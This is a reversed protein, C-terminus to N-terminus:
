PTARGLRAVGAPPDADRQEEPGSAIRQAEVLRWDSMPDPDNGDHGLLMGAFDEIAGWTAALLGIALGVVGAPVTIALVLAWVLGVWSLAPIAAIRRMLSWRALLPDFAGALLQGTHAIVWPVAIGFGAFVLNSVMIPAGSLGQEALALGRALALVGDFASAGGLVFWRRWPPPDSAMSEAIGFWLALTTKLSAVAVYFTWDHLGPLRYPPEPFVDKLLLTTLLVDLLAVGIGLFLAIGRGASFDQRQAPDHEQRNPLISRTWATLGTFGAVLTRHLTTRWFRRCWTLLSAAVLIAGLRLVFLALERVLPRRAAEPVLLLMDGLSWLLALALASGLVRMRYKM